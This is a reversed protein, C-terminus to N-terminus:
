VQGHVEWGMGHTGRGQMGWDEREEWGGGAVMEPPEPLCAAVSTQRDALGGNSRSAQSLSPTHLRCRGGGILSEEAISGHSATCRGIEKAWGIFGGETGDFLTPCSDPHSLLLALDVVGLPDIKPPWVCAAAHQLGHDTALGGNCSSSVPHYLSSERRVPPLPMGQVWGNEKCDPLGEEEELAEKGAQGPMSTCDQMWPRAVVATRWQRGSKPHRPLVHVCGPAGCNCRAMCKGGWGM